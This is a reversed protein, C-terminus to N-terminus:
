LKTKKSLVITQSNNRYFTQLLLRKTQYGDASITINGPAAGQEFIMRMDLMSNEDSIGWFATSHPVRINVLAHQVPNGQKDVVKFRSSIKPYYTVPFRENPKHYAFRGYPSRFTTENSSYTVWNTGIYMDGRHIYNHKYRPMDIALYRIDTKTLRYNQEISTGANIEIDDVFKHTRSNVKVLVKDMNGYSSYDVQYSGDANSKGTAIIQENFIIKIEVNETPNAENDKIFGHINGQQLQAFSAYHSLLFLILFPIRNFISM